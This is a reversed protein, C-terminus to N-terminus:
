AWSGCGFSVPMRIWMKEFHVELIDDVSDGNKSSDIHRLWLGPTQGASNRGNPSKWLGTVM